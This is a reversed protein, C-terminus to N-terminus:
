MRPQRVWLEKRAWISRVSVLHLHTSDREFQGGGSALWVHGSIYHRRMDSVDPVRVTNSILLRSDKKFTKM